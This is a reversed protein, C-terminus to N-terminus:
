VGLSPFTSGMQFHPLTNSDQCEENAETGVPLPGAIIVGSVSEEVGHGM